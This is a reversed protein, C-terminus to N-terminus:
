EQSEAGMEEVRLYLEYKTGLEELKLGGTFRLQCSSVTVAFVNLGTFGIEAAKRHVVVTVAPNIFTTKFMVPAKTMPYGNTDFLEKTLKIFEVKNVPTASNSSPPQQPQESETRSNSKSLVKEVLERIKEETVTPNSSPAEIRESNLRFARPSDKDSNTVYLDFGTSVRVLYITDLTLTEPLSGVVKEFRLGM